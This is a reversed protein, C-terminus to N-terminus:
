NTSAKRIRFENWAKYFYLFYMYKSTATKETMLYYNMADFGDEGMAYYEKFKENGYQDFFLPYFVEPYHLKYYLTRLEMQVYEAAHARSFLYRVKECSRIYWDPLGAMIMKERLEPKMRGSYMKGKRVDEAISFASERDIGYALMTEFVDERTGIMNAITAKGDAFLLEGNKLWTNTGLSMAEFRVLEAMTKPQLTDILMLTFEDMFGPIALLGSKIGYNKGQPIGLGECNTVLSLIEDSKIDEDTPYYGTAEYLRANLSCTDHCFIDVKDFIHDVSHYDFQFSVEKREEDMDLPTYILEDVDEPVLVMGCPHMGRKRVVCELDKKVISKQEDSLEEDYEEYWKIMQDAEWDSTTAITGARYATKIGPLKKSSDLLEEWVGSDFNMDIYPYKDGKIGLFFESHLPVDLDLPNVHSIELLYCVLMSASTGRLNYQSPNLNNNHILDHFWLYYYANENERIASLENNLRTIVSESVSEITAQEGYINKIGKYCLEELKRFDDERSYSARKHELPKIYEIQEAIKNTNEVVIEYAKDDGMYSFEEVMEETSRFYLNNEETPDSFGCEELLVCRSIANEPRLYHVDGTAVVLKDMKEGLEIIRAIYRRIDEETSMCDENDNKLMWLLENVPQIELFDFISAIEEIDRSSKASRIAQGLLGAECASGILLNERNDLLDSLRIRPRKNFYKLNSDTVLRYLSHIGEMNKALITIHYIPCKRIVDESTVLLNIIEGITKIGRETLIEVMKLYAEATARADDITRHHNILDVGCIKTINDLSYGNLEPWLLRSLALTDISKYEFAIGLKSASEEIFGMDFSANHGVIIADDVFEIFKPIVVDITPADRVMLDDIGTLEHIKGPVSKSPKVFTQFLDEIKGNIIKVASLEIIEERLPSFGTTKIDVVAVDAGISEDLSSSLNKGLLDIDNVVYGEMGYIPKFGEKRECYHQIEPYAMVNGHDTFAVSTMGNNVAFDVIDRVSVTGDQVSYGTHCHLEVRNLYKRDMFEKDVVQTDGNLVKM